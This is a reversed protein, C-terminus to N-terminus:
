FTACVAYVELPIDDTWIPGGFPSEEPGGSLTVSRPETSHVHVGAVPALEVSWRSCKTIGLSTPQCSDPYSSSVAWGGAAMSEDVQKVGGGTVFKGAPCSASSTFVEVVLPNTGAIGGTAPTSVVEVNRAGTPTCTTTSGGCLSTLTSTLADIKAQLSQLSPRATTQAAATQFLGLTITAALAIRALQTMCPM